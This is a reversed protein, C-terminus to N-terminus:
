QAVPGSGGAGRPRPPTRGLRLAVVWLALFVVALTVTTGSGAILGLGLFAAQLAWGLGYGGRRGLAGPLLLCIVAVVGLAIPLGPGDVGLVNIVVPIALAVTIGECVLVTSAFRRTPPKYGALAADADPSTPNAVAEDPAASM